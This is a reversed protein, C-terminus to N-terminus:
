TPHTYIDKQTKKRPIIWYINKKGLVKLQNNNITIKSGQLYYNNM